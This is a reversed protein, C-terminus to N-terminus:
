KNYAEDIEFDYSDMQKLLYLNNVSFKLPMFRSGLDRWTLSIMM